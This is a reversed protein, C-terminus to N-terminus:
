TLLDTQSVRDGKPGVPGSQGIEGQPGPVGQKVHFDLVHSNTTNTDTLVCIM